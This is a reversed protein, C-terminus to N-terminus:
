TNDFILTIEDNESRLTVSDIRDVDVYVDPDDSSEVRVLSTTRSQETYITTTQGEVSGNGDADLTPNLSPNSPLRTSRPPNLVKLTLNSADVLRNIFRATLRDGARAYRIKQTM